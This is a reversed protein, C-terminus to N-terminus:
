STNAHYLAFSRIRAEGVAEKVRVRIATSEFPAVLHIRKHGICSGRCLEFWEWDRFLGDVYAEVVYERVREGQAIDEM